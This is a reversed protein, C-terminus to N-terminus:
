TKCKANPLYILGQGTCFLRVNMTFQKGVTIRSHTSYVTAAFVTVDQKPCTCKM